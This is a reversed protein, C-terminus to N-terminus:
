RSRTSNNIKKHERPTNLHEIDEQHREGPAKRKREPVTCYDVGM